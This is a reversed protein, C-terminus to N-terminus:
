SADTLFDCFAQQAAAKKGEGLIFAFFVALKLM